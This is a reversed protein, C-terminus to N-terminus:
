MHRETMRDEDKEEIHEETWVLESVRSTRRSDKAHVYFLVICM